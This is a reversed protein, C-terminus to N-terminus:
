RDLWKLLEASREKSLILPVDCGVLQISLRSNYFQSIHNIAEINAYYQRNLRFFMNPNLATELENMTLHVVNENGDATTAYVKRQSFKFFMIDKVKVTLLNEGRWILLREKYTCIGNVVETSNSKDTACLGVLKDIKKLTAALSDKVIPKLLYEVANNRFAKLAYEDYATTFVVPCEPAAENFAEFVEQGQLMIDSFILDYGVDESLRCIVDSVCCLPGDIEMDPKLELLMRRLRRFSIEEDEIILVRM